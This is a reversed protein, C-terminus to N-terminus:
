GNEYEELLKKPARNCWATLLLSKLDDPSLTQLAILMYDTNLYHDTVFFTLPDTDMYDTNLYHDTVFFTLPDTDMWKEREDTQIVLTECDEKLRCFIKKNVYFAPTNYCMKETVGPLPMVIKRVFELFAITGPEMLRQSVNFRWQHRNNM